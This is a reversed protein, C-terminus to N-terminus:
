LQTKMKVNECVNYTFMVFIYISYLIIFVICVFLQTVLYFVQFFKKFTNSLCRLDM